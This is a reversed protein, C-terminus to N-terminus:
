LRLGLRGLVVGSITLRERESRWAGGEVTLKRRLADAMFDQASGVRVSVGNLRCYELYGEIAKVYNRREPETLREQNLMERWNVFIVQPGGLSTRGATQVSPGKPM